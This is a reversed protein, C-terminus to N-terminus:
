PPVGEVDFYAFTIHVRETKAGFFFYHCRSCSLFSFHDGAIVYDHDRVYETDRPYLGPWNPSSFTGNSHASSNYVFACVTNSIFFFM